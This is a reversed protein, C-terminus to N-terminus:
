QPGAARLVPPLFLQLDFLNAEQAAGSEDAAV